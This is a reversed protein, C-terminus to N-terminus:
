SLKRLKTEIMSAETDYKSLAKILPDTVDKPVGWYSGDAYKVAVSYSSSHIDTRKNIEKYKDTAKHIAESLTDAIFEEDLSHGGEQEWSDRIAIKFIIPTDTIQEVLEQEAKLAALHQETQDVSKQLSERIHLALDLSNAKEEVMTAYGARLSDIIGRAYEHEQVSELQIGLGDTLKPHDTDSAVIWRSFEGTEGDKRYIAVNKNNFPHIPKELLLAINAENDPDKISVEPTIYREHEPMYAGYTDVLSDMGEILVEPSIRVEHEQRQKDLPMGLVLPEGTRFEGM